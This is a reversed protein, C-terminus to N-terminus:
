LRIEFNSYTGTAEGREVDSRDVHAGMRQEVAHLFRDVEAPKGEAVLYVRGDPLNRVFGTVARSSALRYAEYRFGVGQVMGSYFVEVRVKSGTQM